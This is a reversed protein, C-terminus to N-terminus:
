WRAEIEVWEHATLELRIKGDELPCDALPEGLFNVQRAKCVNRFSSLAARAPRGATELLRVRFGEVRGETILPEWHTAVVNRADIHFLWSSTNPAPPAATEYVTTEPALLSMAEHIPHAVDIGIGLQFTREREGRVILLSDLMRMGVRRHFPLGGTLITTSSEGHAIEVYHPAEFRRQGAPQRTQGLSRYVDASEDAWAFRAAIYSNAPDARPEEQPDLEVELRIVRSGRWIRYTQRFGSLQQGERDLLRGRTTVEGLATSVATVEVSDAAMVSYLEADDSESWQEGAKPRAGAFRYALQQSLRNGRTGYEHIAQITGTVPNILAEFFENRLIFVGDKATCDEALPKPLPKPRSPGRGSPVWVFGMPPVDVVAHKRGNSEDAAYIPKGVAPSYELQPVQVGIRRVFSCPNAVLYGSQSATKQRPLCAAFQISATTLADTLRQDLNEVDADEARLEVEDLLEGSPGNGDNRILCVLSGLAQAAEAMARRRWYRISTSIPDTQKRIIAQKLYPSRYQDATFRDLNGPLDTKAFYEDITIFKGLAPSYKAIRRLDNYWPSAQGPWHALCVTAVHDMDMSEGMKVAYSLYTEPKTADLPPRTLADIASGDNGEWRTKIHSGEPFRGDDLTSHLAGHFGLKHLIQPLAPTMGFRRRGFVVPRKGLHTTYENLGRRLEALTSEYSLLPLRREVIEGGIISAKNQEVADKLAALTAPENAAMASLLEAAILLNVPTPSNLEDRLTQGITTSAVLTLDLVFADVPYYHDREQALLDFCASLKERAETENGSLAANAGAIVQNQFHVEDLNSAYRMQRTLLEVQLYCYGLALFDAVLEEDVGGAGGDLQELALAVIESRNQKKRILCAGDDKARQAFGTPLQSVSVSPVLILRNALKEPPDDVRNWKPMLGTAALLAPHWMASWNALLGEAEEGQHHLPFDELSHCPLLIISEEYKMAFAHAPPALYPILPRARFENALQALENLPLGCAVAQPLTAGISSRRRRSATLRPLYKAGTALATLTPSLKGRYRSPHAADLLKGHRLNLPSASASHGTERGLWKASRLDGMTRSVKPRCARRPRLGAGLRSGRRATLRASRHRPFRPVSPRQPDPSRNETKAPVPDMSM